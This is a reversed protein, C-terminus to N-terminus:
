AEEELPGGQEEAGDGEWELVSRPRQGRARAAEIQNIANVLQSQLGFPLHKRGKLVRGWIGEFRIRM